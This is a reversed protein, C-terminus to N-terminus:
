SVLCSFFLWACVICVLFFLFPWLFHPAAISRCFPTHSLALMSHCTRELTAIMVCERPCYERGLLELSDLWFSSNM